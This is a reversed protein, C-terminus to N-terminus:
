RQAEMQEIEYEDPQIRCRLGNWTFDTAGRLHKRVWTRAENDMDAHRKRAHASVWHRLAARRDRGPPIDRLRFVERAGLPDTLFRVRPGSSHGLWVSWEYRLALAAGLAAPIDRDKPAGPISHPAANRWKGGVMVMPVLASKATGDPKACVVEDMVMFPSFVSAGFPRAEKLSISRIREFQLTGEPWRDEPIDMYKNADFVLKLDMPWLAPKGDNVPILLESSNGSRANALDFPVAGDMHALPVNLRHRTDDECLHLFALIREAMEEVAAAKNKSM